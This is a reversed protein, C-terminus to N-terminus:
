AIRIMRNPSEIELVGWELYHRLKDMGSVADHAVDGDNDTQWFGGHDLRDDAM